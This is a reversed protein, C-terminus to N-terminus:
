DGDYRASYTCALMHQAACALSVDFDDFDANSSRAAGALVAINAAVFLMSALTVLVFFKMQRNTKQDGLM